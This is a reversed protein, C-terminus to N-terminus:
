AARNEGLICQWYGVDIWTGLKFGVQEFHAVKHMGFREHLAVSAPNPLSIGAVVAHVGRRELLPFLRGYLLSGLGRGTAAPDLYVTVEATRRYASRRKWLAAYAYGAVRGNEVAVLWPWLASQVEAVRRAMEAADVAAEEFTVVTGAVFHNYIAALAAADSATADRVLAAGPAPVAIVPEAM